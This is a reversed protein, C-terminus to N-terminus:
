EQTDQEISAFHRAAELALAEREEKTKRKVEDRFMLFARQLLAAQSLGQAKAEIKLAKRIKPDFRFTSLEKNNRKSMTLRALM